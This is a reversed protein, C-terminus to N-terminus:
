QNPFNQLNTLILIGKTIMQRHRRCALALNQTSPESNFAFDAAFAAFAAFAAHWINCNINNNCNLIPSKQSM